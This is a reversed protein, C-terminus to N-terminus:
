KILVLKNVATRANSELKVLYVGATLDDGKLTTESRGANYRGDALTMVKRGTLDYVSVVARGAKELNFAIRTMNNFPNPYPESLEFKIPSIEEDAPAADIIGNGVLNIVPPSQDDTDITLRATHMEQDPPSYIIDFTVAEGVSLVVEGPWIVQFAENNSIVDSVTVPSLSTGYLSLSYVSERGIAVEDFDILISSVAVNPEIQDSPIVIAHMMLDAVFPEATEGDFTFYHGDGRLGADGIIQPRNDERELEIWFWFDGSLGQLDENEWLSVSMTNPLCSDAPVTLDVSTIEDGPTSEDESSLIHLICDADGNQQGNFMFHAGIITYEEIEADVPSFRTAPGTGSEFPYAFQYTRNDYGFEYIGEPMIRVGDVGVSDNETNQDDDDPDATNSGLKTMAWIQFVGPYTPTWGPDNMDDYDSLAVEIFEGEAISPRPIIPLERSDQGNDWGWEAWIGNLDRIGYNYMEVTYGRLRHGVTLPYPLHYNEMGADLPNRNAGIVEIDDLFLGDGDGENDDNDSIYLWRLQVTQGAWETLDMEINAADGFPTGPIYHEWRDGGAGARKYDHHLYQWTIGDDDSIFVQYFDDLGGDGDSDDDPLDCYVWYQFYTNLNEPVEFPPTILPNRCNRQDDTHWMSWDGSHHSAETLEWWDGFGPGRRPIMDEGEPIPDDDCNNSLFVTGEDDEILIDDLLIGSNTLYYNWPAAVARDTVILFRVVIDEAAYDSLDFNVNVWDPEPTTDNVADWDGSEFVWGPTPGMDWFREAASIREATYEPSEPILPEFDEGGNESIMVLWGDWGDYPNPPPVRRPDEVLWYADFTLSLGEDAGSLDLVPTDLYQLWINNYGVYEQDYGLLTDGCWWLLNDEERALFDSKHWATDPNTLDLTTWGEAGDEFDEELVMEDDADDRVPQRVPDDANNFSVAKVSSFPTAPSNEAAQAQIGAFVLGVIFLFSLLKKM